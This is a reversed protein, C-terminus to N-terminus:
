RNLMSSRAMTRTQELPQNFTLEAIGRNTVFLADIENHQLCAMEEPTGERDAWHLFHKKQCERAAGCLKGSTLHYIKYKVTKHGLEIVERAVQLEENIYCKGITLERRALM